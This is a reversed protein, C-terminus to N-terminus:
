KVGWSYSHWGDRARVWGLQALRKGFKQEVQPPIFAEVEKVGAKRADDNCVRCLQRIGELRWAPSRWSPDCVLYAEATLKLFAAMGISQNDGAVRRSFFVESSLPPLRYDLGSQSHLQVIRSYDADKFERVIM